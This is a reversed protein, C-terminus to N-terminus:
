AMSLRRIVFYEKTSLSANWLSAPKRNLEFLRLSLDQIAVGTQPRSEICTKSDLIIIVHGPWVILDLPKVLAVIKEVSLNELPVPKGFNVLWATNRPTAGNTAEYLLGSCDVGKLTWLTKMKETLSTKPPFYDLLEPIGQSINGGWIYAAGVLSTLHDIIQSSSPAIKKKEEKQESLFRKDVFLPGSPYDKTEVQYTGFPTKQIIKFQTGPYAITEVARILGQDDLPLSMGDKGGFVQTFDPTNLIPTYTKAFAVSSM